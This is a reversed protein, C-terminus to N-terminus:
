TMRRIYALAYYPPLTAVTGTHTHAGDTSITHSHTGDHSIGHNHGLGGGRAEEATYGINAGAGTQLALSGGSTQLFTLGGLHQHSPIESIDLVHVSTVDTHSHDGASGDTHTHAGDSSSTFAGSTAGGVGGVAYTSGAGVVFRNRLDPTGNTGDCIQWNAPISAISGSWKIIGGIPVFGNNLDAPAATVAANLNPFTALLVAKILRLHDDAQALPDTTPPNTAVLSAIYTATEISM